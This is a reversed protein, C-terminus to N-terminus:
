SPLEWGNTSNVDCSQKKIYDYYEFHALKYVEPIHVDQLYDKPLWIIKKLIDRKQAVELTPNEFDLAESLAKLGMLSDAGSNIRVDLFLFESKKLLPLFSPLSNEPLRNLSLNLIKLEPFVNQIKEIIQGAIAYDFIYENSAFILPKNQINLIEVNSQQILPNLHNLDKIIDESYIGKPSYTAAALDHCSILLIAYVCMNIIKKM